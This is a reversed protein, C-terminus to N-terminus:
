KQRSAIRRPHGFLQGDDVTSMEIICHGLCSIHLICSNLEYTSLIGIRKQCLMASPRTGCCQQLDRGMNSIENTHVRSNFCAIAWERVM